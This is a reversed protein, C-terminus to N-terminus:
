KEKFKNTVSESGDYGYPLINVAEVVRDRTWMQTNTQITFGCGNDTTWEHTQKKPYALVTLLVAIVGGHTVVCVEDIGTKMMEEYIENIGLICRNAFDVSAEGGKPKYGSKPDLWKSFNEDENLLEQFTKGEFEGFNCEILKPALEYETNPFLIEATKKTRKMPSVFLKEFHPYEFNEKLKLLRDIGEQCLESDTGSGLYQGKLNGDTLAHRILHIKYNKM